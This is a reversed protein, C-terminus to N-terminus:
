SGRMSITSAHHECPALRMTRAHHECPARMICSAHHECPARMTSAHHLACPARMTSAHHECSALRMTSAHHECPARMTSSAHTRVWFGGGSLQHAAAHTNFAGCSLCHPVTAPVSVRAKGSAVVKVDAALGSRSGPRSWAMRGVHQPEKCAVSCPKQYRGGLGAERFARETAAARIEPWPILTTHGPM